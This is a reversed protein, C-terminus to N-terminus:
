AFACDCTHGSTHVCQTGRVGVEPCRVPPQEDGDDGYHNVLLDTFGGVVASQHQPSLGADAVIIQLWEVLDDMATAVTVNETTVDVHDPGQVIDNCTDCLKATAHVPGYAVAAPWLTRVDVRTHEDPLAGCRVCSYYPTAASM